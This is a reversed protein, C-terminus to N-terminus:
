GDTSTLDRERLLHLSITGQQSRQHRVKLECRDADDAASEGLRVGNRLAEVRLVVRFAGDLKLRLQLCAQRVDLAEGVEVDDPYEVAGLAALQRGTWRGVITWM